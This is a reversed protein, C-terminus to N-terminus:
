GSQKICRSCLRNGPGRSLFVKECRLCPRPGYTFESLSFQKIFQRNIGLLSARKTIAIRTLGHQQKLRAVMAEQDNVYSRIIEYDMETTFKHAVAM